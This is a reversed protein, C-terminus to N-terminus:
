LKTEVSSLHISPAAGKKLDLLLDFLTDTSFRQSFSGNM